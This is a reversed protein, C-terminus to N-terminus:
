GGLPPRPTCEVHDDGSHSFGVVADDGGVVFLVKGSKIEDMRKSGGPRILGCSPPLEATMFHGHHIPSHSPSPMPHSIVGNTKTRDGRVAGEARREAYCLLGPARRAGSQGSAAHSRAARGNCGPSRTAHDRREAPM